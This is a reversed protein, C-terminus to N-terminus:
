YAKIEMPHFNFGSSVDQILRDRIELPYLTLNKIDKLEVWLPKYYNTKDKKMLIKEISNPSLKPHGSIYKCLFYYHSTTELKATYVLKDIAVKILTEEELERAVTQEPSEGYEVGGGPFIYYEAGEKFRHILLVERDRIVIGAARGPKLTPSKM